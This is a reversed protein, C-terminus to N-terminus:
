IYRNRIIIDSVPLLDFREDKDLIIKDEDGNYEAIVADVLYPSEIIESLKRGEFQTQLLLPVTGKTLSIHNKTQMMYPDGDRHLPSGEPAHYLLWTSIESPHVLSTFLGIEEGRDIVNIEMTLEILKNNGFLVSHSDEGDHFQQIVGAFILIVAPNFGAAEITQLQYSSIKLKMKQSIAHAMKWLRPQNRSNQNHLYYAAREIFAALNNKDIFNILRGNSYTNEAETIVKLVHDVEPDITPIGDPMIRVHFISDIENASLGYIEETKIGESMNQDLTLFVMKSVSLSLYDIHKRTLETM